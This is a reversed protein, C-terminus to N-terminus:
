LTELLGRSEISSVSSPFSHVSALPTGAVVPRLPANVTTFLRSNIVETLLSLCVSAFLPHSRRAARAAEVEERSSFATVQLPPPM